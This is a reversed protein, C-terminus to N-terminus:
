LSHELCNKVSELIGKQKWHLARRNIVEYADEFVLHHDVIRMYNTYRAEFVTAEGENLIINYLNEKIGAVAWIVPKNEPKTLGVSHLYAHGKYLGEPEKLQCFRFEINHKTCTVWSRSSTSKEQM